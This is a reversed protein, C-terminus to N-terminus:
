QSLGLVSLINKQITEMDPEGDIEDIHWGLTRLENIAPVVQEEYWSFRSAIIEDKADDYRGRAILREKASKPSLTLVVAHM